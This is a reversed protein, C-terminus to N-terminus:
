SFFKYIKRIGQPVLLSLPDISIDNHNNKRHISYNVTMLSHNQEGTLMKGIVPIKWILKNLIYLPTLSGNMILDNNYLSYISDFNVGLAVGEALANKIFFISNNYTFPAKFNSFYIGDGQLIDIIGTFSALSLIKTLGPMNKIFFNNIQIDGIKNRKNETSIRITLSGENISNIIGLMKLFKGANNTQLYLIDDISYLHIYEKKDFSGSLSINKLQDIDINAKIDFISMNNYNIENLDIIIKYQSLSDLIKNIDTPLKNTHHQSNLESLDLQNGKININKYDNDNNYKITFDNKNIKVKLIAMKLANINIDYVIDGSILNDQHNYLIKNFIIQNNEISAELSMSQNDINMTRDFYPIYLKTNIFDGNITYFNNISNKIIEIKVDGDQKYPKQYGFLRTLYNINSTINYKYINNKYKIKISNNNELLFNGDFAIDYNKDINLTYEGDINKIKNSLKDYNVTGDDMKGDIILKNLKFKDDTISFSLDINNELTGNIFIQLRDISGKPIPLKKIYNIFATIDGISKASIDIKNEKFNYKLSSNKLINEALQSKSIYLTLNNPNINIKGNSHTFPPLKDYYSSNVNYLEGSIMFDEENKFIININKLIGSS